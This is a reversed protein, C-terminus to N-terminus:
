VGVLAAAVPFNVRQETRGGPGEFVTPVGLLGSARAVGALGGLQAVVDDDLEGGRPSTITRVVGGPATAVVDAEGATERAFDEFGETATTTTLLCGTFLAVGLVVGGTTLAVRARRDTLLRRGIAGLSRVTVGHAGSM